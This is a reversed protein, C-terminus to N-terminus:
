EGFDETDVPQEAEKAEEEAGEEAPAEEEAGEEPAAEERGESGVVEAFGFRASIRTVKVRVEDGSKVGPVFLVFGQVRAVGDGKEGVSEIKVDFEEGVRIPAERGFGGRRYM